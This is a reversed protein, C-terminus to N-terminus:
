GAITLNKSQFRQPYIMVTMSNKSSIPKTVCVRVSMIIASMDIDSNTESFQQLCQQKMSM